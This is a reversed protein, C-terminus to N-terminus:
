DRKLRLVSFLRRWCSLGFTDIRQCEAKKITWFSIWVHNGCFLMVKFMCVNLLLTIARCKLICVIFSYHCLVFLFYLAMSSPSFAAKFNLMWFVFIMSVPGMWNLETSWDHGVWTWGRDDGEGGVKLREWCWPRKLYTPEKCWTALTNSNRSQCWDKWHINLVSGKHNVPKIEKCDLSSELTKELVM